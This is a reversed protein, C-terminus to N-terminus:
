SFFNPAYTLGLWDQRTREEVLRWGWSKTLQIYEKKQKKLIGSVIWKSAYKNLLSPNFEKQEPLIMNMLFVSNRPLKIPLKKSFKIRNTLSNLKANEKAHKIADKDIDIGIGLRAGLLIGALTLIGSGTGIDIITQDAVKDKMMELM